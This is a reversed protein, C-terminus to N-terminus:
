NVHVLGFVFGILSFRALGEDSVNCIYESEFGFVNNFRRVNIVEVLGVFGLQFCCNAFEITISFVSKSLLECDDADNFVVFVYM